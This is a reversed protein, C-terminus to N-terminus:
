SNDSRYQRKPVVMEFRAGKGAIGNERLTIGTLSLIERILFLGLGSNKGFGQDFIREKEEEPVGVGNDEWLIVLDGGSSHASVAIHTAQRGHRLSNDLLNSFITELMPDAFVWIDQVDADLTMTAPVNIRSIVTDLKIWQPEKAGLDHYIRNFEIQSQIETIATRIKELYVILEPDQARMKALELYGYISTVKNLVDHRTIGSLLGLQRNARHLAEEAVKRETIDHNVGHTKITRGDADKTIGVCMEIYRIKGDGRIIRYERRSVYDADPSTRTKEDEEALIHRDDPHVLDRIYAEATMQRIGKGNVDTGYLMSFRDDFTLIGTRIDCEWSTLNALDMAEALMRQSERLAVETSKRETIDEMHVMILDPPVFAANIHVYKGPMFHESELDMTVVNKESICQAIEDIFGPQDAYIESATKQLYDSSRGGSILEAKRNCDVLIFDNDRQQWTFIALPNNQYQQRFRTESEQLAAQMAKEETVDRGVSQYETVTGSADFIARDSWWQWRITGDPMIIRHEISDVPHAPHLSAFFQKVRDKDDAPIKPRFRKGLTTERDLSFYRCYAENVFVLTGDPRFRTIFETQDEVVNRYKKESEALLEQSKTLNDYNQRIEKESAALQEYAAHLEESRRAIEEEADKRDSIDSCMAFSGRFTGDPDVFPTASVQMWRIEGDKTMYRREYRTSKGNRCATIRSSNAPIDEAAMFSAIPQGTMEEPTCGHMEAMRRNVYLITFKEDLQFIGEDTTEVICRYREESERLALETRKQETIDISVGLVAQQNYGITIFPVKTTQFIRRNGSTSIRFDEPIYKIKGTTIVERDDELMYRLEDADKHFHAQSKGILEAATTRYMNAMAQNALLFNGNADKAFIMHPVLDIIQRLQAENQKLSNEARRRMVAYRIKNSLEAFLSKPEGGKQIYFDAGENLAQIVIEERGRGTFLIFPITNKSTRITKLFAIGDMEPMQYDSIVADYEKTDLLVRAATASSITDVIFEGSQELFLKGIDLLTPEDDVYLIHYM